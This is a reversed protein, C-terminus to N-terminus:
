VVMRKGRRPERITGTLVPRARGGLYKVSAFVVKYPGGGLAKGCGSTRKETAKGSTVRCGVPPKSERKETQGPKMTAGSGGKRYETGEKRDLLRLCTRFGKKPLNEGANKKEPIKKERRNSTLM